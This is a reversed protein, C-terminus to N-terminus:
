IDAMTGTRGPRMSKDDVIAIVANGRATAVEESHLAADPIIFTNVSQPGIAKPMATWIIM